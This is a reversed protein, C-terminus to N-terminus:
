RQALDFLLTLNICSEYMQLSIHNKPSRLLLLNGRPRHLATGFKCIICNIYAAGKFKGVGSPDSQHRRAM